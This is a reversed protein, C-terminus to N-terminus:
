EGRWTSWEDYITKLFVVYEESHATALVEPAYSRTVALSHGAQELSRKIVWAREPTERPTVIQGRDVEFACEHQLQLESFVFEM